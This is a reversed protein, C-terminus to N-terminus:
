YDEMCDVQGIAAWYADLNDRKVATVANKILLQNAESSLIMAQWAKDSQKKQPTCTKKIDKLVQQKIQAEKAPDDKEQAHVFAAFLLCVLLCVLHAAKM